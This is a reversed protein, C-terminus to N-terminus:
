QASLYSCRLVWDGHCQAVLAAGVPVADDGLESILLNVEDPQIGFLHRFPKIVM